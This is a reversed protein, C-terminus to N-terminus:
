YCCYGMAMYVLIVDPAVDDAPNDPTGGDRHLQDARAVISDKGNHKSETGYCKSGSYCNPVCLEMELETILRGWYTMTWDCVNNDKDNHSNNIGLTSNIATDDSVGKFTSISDGVISIRKGKYGANKLAQVKAAFAEEMAKQEAEYADYAAKSEYTKEIVFDFCLLDRDYALSDTSGKTFMGTEKCETKLYTAIESATTKVYAAILTDEANGLALTENARLRIPDQSLDLTVYRYIYSNEALDFDQAKIKLVRDERPFSRMGDLSSGVVTLTFSFEGLSDTTLTKQVPISISTISCDSLAAVNLSIAPVMESDLSGFAAARAELAAKVTNFQEETYYKQAHQYPDPAPTDAAPPPDGGDDGSEPEENCGTFCALVLLLSLLLSLLSFIYRKM